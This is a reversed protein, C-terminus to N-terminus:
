YNFHFKGIAIIVRLAPAANAAPQVASMLGDSSVGNVASAM